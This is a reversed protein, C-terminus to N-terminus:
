RYMRDDIQYMCSQMNVIKLPASKDPYSIIDM